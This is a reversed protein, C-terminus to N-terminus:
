QNYQKSDKLTQLVKQINQTSCLVLIVLILLNWVLLQIFFPYDILIGFYSLSFTVSSLVILPLFIDKLVWILFDILKYELTKLTQYFMFWGNTLLRSIITGSVAGKIGFKYTLYITLLLNLLAELVTMNAYSSHKEAASLIADSPWVVSFLFAFILMLYFVDQGPFISPGAWNVIIIEGFFVLNFIFIFAIMVSFFLLTRFLAKLEELKGQKYLGSILPMKISSAIGVTTVFLWIIQMPVAYMPVSEAGIISGIIVNDVSNLMSGSVMLIFFSTSPKVMKRTIESDRHARSIKFKPIIKKLYVKAGLSPLCHSIGYIISLAILKLGSLLSIVIAIYRVLSGFFIECTQELHIHDLGRLVNRYVFLPYTILVATVTIVLPLSGNTFFDPYFINVALFIVVCILLVSLTIKLFLYYGSSAVKSYYDTKDISIDRAIANTVVQLIGVNTLYFFSTISLVILWIGYEETTLYRVFLPILVIPGVVNVAKSIISTILAKRAANEVQLPM